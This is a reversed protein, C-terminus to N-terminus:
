LGKTMKVWYWSADSTICLYFNTDGDADDITGIFGRGLTAPTGFASDLQADTPTTDHVDDVAQKTRIGATAIVQLNGSEVDLINNGYRLATGLEPQLLWSANGAGNDEGAMQIMNAAPDGLTGNGIAFENAASAGFISTNLGFNGGALLMALNSSGGTTISGYGGTGTHTFGIYNGVLALGSGWVRITAGFDRDLAESETLFDYFALASDDGVMDVGITGLKMTNTNIDFPYVPAPNNIGVFGNNLITMVETDGNNGVLFHMDAGTTGVGTTTQFTIGDTTGIGGTLTQGGSVGSSIIDGITYDKDLPTLIRTTATTIPTDIDFVIVKSNDLNGFITFANDAFSTASGNVGGSATQPTTGRLDVTSVHSWTAGMQFTTKCILFGNSSDIGFQRPITFNDYGLVDNEADLPSNYYGGPVNVMVAQHEGGKNIVGWVVLNFYKNNTITAGTSDTTISFLDTIGRYASVSSNVVHMTDTPTAFAPFTQDHMQTMIGSTSIFETNSASITYYSATAGNGDIGSFYTPGLARIKRGVHSVHGQNDTGALHDNHNQNILAGGATQTTAASQIFFYGIKIHETAPWSTTSKVLTTPASELIYIWNSQPSTDSGVTLAITDAPTCDYAGIGSSFQYTLDGTGSQEINMTVTAGDSSVDADFSEKFTGNWANYVYYATTGETMDDLSVQNAGTGWDIHTDDVANATITTVNGATLGSATGTINTGVLASPTGLAPTILTPSTSFVLNTSTTGTAGSATYGTINNFATISASSSNTGGNAVPLVGTIGTTLPLGTLNTAVGSSPTGLAPTILTPSDNFVSLGTGTEDSIVGILQLSTTASFFSLNDSADAIANGGITVASSLDFTPTNNATLTGFVTYTAGDVDYASLLATDAATTGTRFAGTNIVTLNNPIENSRGAGQVWIRGSTIHSRLVTAVAQVLDGNVTPRINTLIGAADSVYLVDGVSWSSTDINEIVGNSIIHGNANNFIDEEAIGIAPMFSAVNADAKDVEVKDQGVNYGSAYVPTGATLTVGSINRSKIYTADAHVENTESDIIKNTLTEAVSSTSYDTGVIAITQVGTTTTNKVIGTALAGMAQENTLNADLTQTIYTAGVPAASAVTGTTVTGSNDVTFVSVDDVRLDLINSTGPSATDTQNVVLGTDNGSTAKNTTYDLRLAIENGTAVDLTSNIVHNGDVDMSLSLFGGVSLGVSDASPFWIGTDEDGVTTYAPAGLTGALVNTFAGSKIAAADVKSDSGLKYRAAADAVGM